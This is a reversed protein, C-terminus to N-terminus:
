EEERTLRFGLNRHSRLPSELCRDPGSAAEPTRDHMTGSYASFATEFVLRFGTGGSAHWPEAELRAAGDEPFPFAHGRGRMPKMRAAWDGGDTIRSM